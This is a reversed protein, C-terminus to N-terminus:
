NGRSREEIRTPYAAKNERRETCHLYICMRACSCPSAHLVSRPSSTPMKTSHTVASYASHVSTVLGVGDSKRIGVPVRHTRTAAATTGKERTAYRERTTRRRGDTADSRGTSTSTSHAFLSVCHIHLTSERESVWLSHPPPLSLSLTVDRERQTELLVSTM